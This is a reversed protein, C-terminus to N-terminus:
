GEVIELVEDILEEFREKKSEFDEIKEIYKRQMYVHSDTYNFYTEIYYPDDRFVEMYAVNISQTWIWAATPLVGEELLDCIAEQMTKKDMGSFLYMLDEIGTDTISTALFSCLEIKNM